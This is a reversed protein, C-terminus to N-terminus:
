GTHPTEDGAPVPKVTVGERVKQRGELIVRAGAPLGSGVVWNSGAARELVIDRREVKDGDGVVLVSARGNEGLMVSRQPVVIADHATAQEIRARAFMGPLLLGEPNPVEARLTVTGTREDVTVDSFLLSGRHEYESGDDLLLALTQGEGEVKSAEGRELMRRLALLESTSQEFDFYVPDLQQIVALRTAEAASVLAGETVSAKGIRGAIPARVTAYSLDLAASRLAAEAASVEAERQAKLARADDMEQQSVAHMGVLEGYREVVSEVQRLNARARMLAARASDHAARLPAPDIQFLVQGQKVDSGEEFKRALLIGSVRARVEAVRLPAIRGPLERRFPVSMQEAQVVVVEVPEHEAPKTAKADGCAGTLLSLLLLGAMCSRRENM